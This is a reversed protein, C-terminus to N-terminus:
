TSVVAISASVLLFYGLYAYESSFKLSLDAAALLCTVSHITSAVGLVVQTGCGAHLLPVCALLAHCVLLM